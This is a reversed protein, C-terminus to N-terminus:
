TNEKRNMAPLENDESPQTKAIKKGNQNAQKKERQQRQRQPQCQQQSPKKEPEKGCKKQETNKNKTSKMVKM